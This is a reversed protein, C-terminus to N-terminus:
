QWAITASYPSQLRKKIDKIEYSSSADIIDTCAVIAISLHERYGIAVISDMISQNLKGLRVLNLVWIALLKPLLNPLTHLGYNRRLQVYDLFKVLDEANSVNFVIETGDDNITVPLDSLEKMTKVKFGQQKSATVKLTSIVKM